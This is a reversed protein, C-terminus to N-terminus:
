FCSWAYWSSFSVSVLSHWPSFTCSRSLSLVCARSVSVTPWRSVRSALASSSLVAVFDSSACSCSDTSLYTHVCVCVCVFVFRNAPTETSYTCIHIYHLVVLHGQGIKRRGGKGVLDWLATVFSELSVARSWDARVAASFLRTATSTSSLCATSLSLLACCSFSSSRDASVARCPLSSTTLWIQPDLSCSAPPNM